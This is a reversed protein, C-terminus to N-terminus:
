RAFSTEKGEPPRKCRRKVRVGALRLPKNRHCQWVELKGSLEGAYVPADQGISDPSEEGACTGLRSIAEAVIL